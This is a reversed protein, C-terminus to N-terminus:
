PMWARRPPSFRLVPPMRWSGDGKQAQLMWALAKNRAADIQATTAAGAVPMLVLMICASVISRAFRNM